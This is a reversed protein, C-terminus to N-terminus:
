FRLDSSATIATEDYFRAEFNVNLARDLSVGLGIFVGMAYKNKMTFERNPFIWNLSKLQHFKARVDSYKVGAYPFFIKFRHSVGLGVQWERYDYYARRPPVSVSNATMHHISPTFQFYKADVGLQTDGWYALIARGGVSWAFHRDTKFHLRIDSYPRYSVRAKEKGFLGYLEVRDNCGVTVVGLNAMAAYDKVSRKLRSRHEKVVLKRNFLDDWEYGGKITLWADKKFFLGEEPMM